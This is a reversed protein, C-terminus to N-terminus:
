FKKNSKNFFVLKSLLIESAGKCFVRYGIKISNSDYLEIVTMM